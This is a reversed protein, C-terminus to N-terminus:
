KEERVKLPRRAPARHYTVDPYGLIIVGWIKGRIGAIKRIAKNERAAMQLLACWSSGVGLTQATLTAYTLAITANMVDIGSEDPSDAILVHPARYFIPDQGRDLKQRVNEGYVPGFMPNTMITECAADSLAAMTAPDSILTYNVTRINTGAPAYRIASYIKDLVLQPVPDKKYRRISRKARILHFFNVYDVIKEPAEIGPFTEVGDMHERLIADTPCVAVCHGCRICIKKPDAYVIQGAEIKTFLLAPCDKICEECSICKGADVGLIPM